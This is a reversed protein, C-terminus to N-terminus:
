DQENKSELEQIIKQGEDVDHLAQQYGRMFNEEAIPLVFEPFEASFTEVVMELTVENNEPNKKTGVYNVIMEKLESDSQVEKTLDENKEVETEKDDFTVKM